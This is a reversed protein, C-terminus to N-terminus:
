QQATFAYVTEITLIIFGVGIITGTITTVIIITMGITITGM